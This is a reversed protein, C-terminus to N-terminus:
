SIFFASVGESVRASRVCLARLLLPQLSGEPEREGEALVPSHLGAM